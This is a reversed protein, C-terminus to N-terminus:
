DNGKRGKIFCKKIFVPIKRTLLLIAKTSLKCVFFFLIGFGICVAGTGLLAIGTPTKDLVAFVTGCVFIGIGCAIFSVFVSWLSIIVSWLSIYLSFVVAVLSVLLSIWIPSGLIILATEWWKIKHKPTIKEKVIKTVPFEEVIHKVIEDIDGIQSVADEEAIEEEMKDDIMESYFDLREEIEDKPLGNLKERLEALFEQKNM